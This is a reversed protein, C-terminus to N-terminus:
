KSRQELALLRKELDSAEIARIFTEVLKSLGAAESVGLEGNAVAVTIAAMAKSADGASSLEPIAFHVPRERRPAVLRDICLRLATTDGQKAREIVKRVIAEAEGELLREALMTARHRTGKPKGAPNGSEGRRFPKGPGRRRQMAESNEAM